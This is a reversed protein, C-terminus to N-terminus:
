KDGLIAKTLELYKKIVNKEDYENEAKKRSYAGMAQKKNYPLDIFKIMAKALENANRVPVLFGNKGEDVTGRCGPVDTTIIPRGMAMAELNTRPTGERYSPLVFCNCEKLFPVVDQKEGLYSISNNKNIQMFEKESIGAHNLEDIPGILTFKADPVKKLVIEAAEIFELIGKDKLLRAIMLFSNTKPLPLPKFFDLNIGSGPTIICKSQDMKFKDIFLAQDDSNQFIFKEPVKFAFSYLRKILNHILKQDNQIFLYGLGTISPVIKVGLVKCVLAAYINPKITFSFVIAAKEKKIKFYLEMLLAIDKLPNMSKRDLNKLEICHFKSLKESYEDKPAILAVEYGHTIFTSILSHRFKYFYFSSNAIFVIKSKTM